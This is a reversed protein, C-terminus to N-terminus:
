LISEGDAASGRVRLFGQGMEVFLALHHAETEKSPWDTGLRMVRGDLLQLLLGIFISSIIFCHQPSPPIGSGAFIFSNM